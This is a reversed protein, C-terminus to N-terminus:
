TFWNNVIDFREGSGFSFAAPTKAYRGTQVNYHFSLRFAKHACSGKAVFTVGQWYLVLPKTCCGRTIM